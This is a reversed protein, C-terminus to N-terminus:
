IANDRSTQAHWKESKQRHSLIICLKVASTTLPPYLFERYLPYCRDQPPAGAPDSWSCLGQNSTRPKFSLVKEYKVIMKAAIKCLLM